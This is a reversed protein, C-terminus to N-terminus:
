FASGITFQFRETDDGYRLPTGQFYRLPQAIDFRFLGMPSLWEVGIGTAVRLQALSIPYSIANGAIDTFRTDGLFAAEGADVFLSVRLDGAFRKPLPLLLDLQEAVTFDAGYPNGFSDRPDLAGERFGRLSDPGGLFFQRYPPLSTTWGLAKGYNVQLRSSFPFLSLYPLRFYQQYEGAAIEYDVESEPVTRSYSIALRMGRDAFLTRNRTDINWGFNLEGVAYRTGYFEYAAKTLVANPQVTWVGTHYVSGNNQVWWLAQTSSTQYGALLQAESVDAGFEVTQFLSIPYGFGVGLTLSDTSLASSYSILQTGHSYTLYETRSLGDINVYPKTHSLSYTRAYANGELNIAIRQGTGLFNDDAFDANLMLKYAGSYGFGGSLQSAPGQKIAYDVDVEDPSGPVRKKSYSVHKVYPLRQIRQKSRELSVNSLWGGEQQLMERRLVVDNIATEGSFTIKRVYVRNGPDIFFTLSVTHNKEDPMPVPDVKAFAYGDEGLRDEILKETNSILQRNFIEGPHIEVLRELEPKPVVFTGALKVESIRYVEGQSINIDIFIDNKKPTIQVQTSNIRFNAYGRDMFYDRLRELDGQLTERSYRDDQKYWSLWNPTKLHFTRLIAKQKFRTDGVINISRIVARAGERIKIAVKVRNGTDPTVETDIAVGYKGRSYYQDTLYQTVDELTSRDFIKGPALGVDRLSKQLDKTKIDKNGSITFSEISPRELVVVVLTNGERRLEVDRFFGAQYLARIAERVRQPTLHDGINVPLYNFVTGESIRQLGEVKIDGVVFDSLNRNASLVQAKSTVSLLSVAAAAWRSVRRIATMENPHVYHVRCSRKRANGRFERPSYTRVRYPLAILNKRITNSEIWVSNQLLKDRHRPTLGRLIAIASILHRMGAPKTIQILRLNIQCGCEV